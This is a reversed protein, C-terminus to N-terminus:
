RKTTDNCNLITSPSVMLMDCNHKNSFIYSMIGSTINENSSSSVNIPEKINYLCDLAAEHTTPFFIDTFMFQCFINISLPLHFFIMQELLMKAIATATATLLFLHCHALVVCFISGHISIFYTHLLYSYKQIISVTACKM